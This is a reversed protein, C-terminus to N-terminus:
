IKFPIFIWVMHKMKFMPVGFVNASPLSRVTYFLKENQCHSSCLMYIYKLALAYFAWKYHFAREHTNLNYREELALNKIYIKQFVCGRRFSNSTRYLKKIWSVFGLDTRTTKHRNMNIFHKLYYKWNSLRAWFTKRSNTSLVNYISIGFKGNSHLIILSGSGVHYVNNTGPFLICLDTWHLTRISRRTIGDVGMELWQNWNIDFTNPITLM